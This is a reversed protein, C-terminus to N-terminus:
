IMQPMEVITNGTAPATLGSESAIKATMASSQKIVNKPEVALSALKLAHSVLMVSSVLRPVTLPTVSSKGSSAITTVVMMEPTSISRTPEFSLCSITSGPPCTLMAAPALATLRM